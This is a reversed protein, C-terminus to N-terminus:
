KEKKQLLKDMQDIFSHVDKTFWELGSAVGRYFERQAMSQNDYVPMNASTDRMLAIKENTVRMLITGELAKVEDTLQSLEEKSLINNDM